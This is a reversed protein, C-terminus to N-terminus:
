LVKLRNNSSSGGDDVTLTASSSPSYPQASNTRQVPRPADTSSPGDVFSLTRGLGGGSTVLQHDLPYHVNWKDRNVAQLEKLVQKTDRLYNQLRRSKDSFIRQQLTQDGDDAAVAAPQHTNGQLLPSAASSSAGARHRYASFIDM